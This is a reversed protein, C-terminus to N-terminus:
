CMHEGVGMEVLRKAAADVMSLVEPGHQKNCKAAGM